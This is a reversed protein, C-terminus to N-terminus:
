TLTTRRPQRQFFQWWPKKEEAQIKRDEARQRFMEEVDAESLTNLGHRTLKASETEMPRPHYGIARARDVRAAKLAVELNRIREHATALESELESVRRVTQNFLSM